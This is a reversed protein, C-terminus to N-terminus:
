ACRAVLYHALERFLEQRTVESDSLKQRVTESLSLRDLSRLRYEIHVGSLLAVGRGVHCAVVAPLSTGTDAYQGIVRVSAGFREPAEFTCGGNYYCHLTRDGFSVTAARSGAESDYSFAHPDYLPGVAAGPYFGLERRGTVELPGGKAFCVEQAGYYAGACLGLFSGGKEEVFRKIQANAQGRLLADYPVDRGGPVALLSADQMWEDGRLRVSDIVDVTYHKGLAEILSALTERYSFLNVGEGRYVFAKLRALSTGQAM